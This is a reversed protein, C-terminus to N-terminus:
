KKLETALGAGLMEQVLSGAKEEDTKGTVALRAGGLRELQAVV